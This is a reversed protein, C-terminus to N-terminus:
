LYERHCQRHRFFYGRNDLAYGNDVEYWDGYEEDTMRVQLPCYYNVTVAILDTTMAKIDAM